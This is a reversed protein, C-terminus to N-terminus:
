QARGDIAGARAPSDRFLDVRDGNLTGRLVDPQGVSTYPITFSAADAPDDQGALFRAMGRPIDSVLDDHRSAPGVWQARGTITAPKMSWAWISRPNGFQNAYVVVLRREGKANTREHMYLLTGGSTFYGLRAALGEYAASECLLAPGSPAMQIYGGARRLATTEGPDETYVVRDPPQAYAMCTRQWWLVQVHAIMAPAYHWAARAVILLVVLTITKRVWRRKQRPPAPAYELPAPALEPPASNM